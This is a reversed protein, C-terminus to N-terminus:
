LKREQVKNKFTNARLHCMQQDLHRKLTFILIYKTCNNQTPNSHLASSSTGFLMETFNHLCMVLPQGRRNLGHFIHINQFMEYM